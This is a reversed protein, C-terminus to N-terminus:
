SDGGSMYRQGIWLGVILVLLVLVWIPLLGILVGLVVGGLMGMGFEQAGGRLHKATATGIGLALLMGLINKGTGFSVGFLNAIGRVSEMMFGDSDDDEDPIGGTPPTTPPDTPWTPQTPPSTLGQRVTSTGGATLYITGSIAAYGDAEIRYSYTLNGPLEIRATGQANAIKLHAPGTPGRVELRAGPIPRGTTQDSIYFQLIGAGPDDPGTSDPYLRVEAVEYAPYIALPLVYVDDTQQYGSVTAQVRYRFSPDWPDPRPIKLEVWGNSTSAAAIETGSPHLISIQATQGILDGSSADWLYVRLGTWSADPAVPPGDVRVYTTQDCVENGYGARAVGLFKYTNDDDPGLRPGPFTHARAQAASSPISFEYTDHNYEFWDAGVRKYASWSGDGSQQNTRYYEPSGFTYSIFDVDAFAESSCDFTVTFPDGTWLVPVASGPQISPISFQYQAGPDGPDTPDTPTSAEGYTSNYWKNLPNCISVLIPYESEPIVYQVNSEGDTVTYVTEGFQVYHDSIGLYGDYEKTIDIQARPVGGAITEVRLGNKWTFSVLIYTKVNTSRYTYVSPYAGGVAKGFTAKIGSTDTVLSDYVAKASNGGGSVYYSNLHVKPWAISEGEQLVCKLYTPGTLKSAPDNFEAWIQLYENEGATYKFYGYTGSMYFDGTIDNQNSKHWNVKAEGSTPISNYNDIISAPIQSFMSNFEPISLPSSMIIGNPIFYGHNGGAPVTHTVTTLEAFYDTYETDILITEDSYMDAAAVPTIVLLLLALVLYYCRKM